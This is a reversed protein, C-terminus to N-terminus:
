SIESHLTFNSCKLLVLINVIFFNYRSRVTSRSATVGTTEYWYQRLRTTSSKRMERTHAVLINDQRLTSIFPRGTRVRSRNSGTIEFRRITKWVASKTRGLFNGIRQFTWGELRLGNATLREAESLEVTRGM